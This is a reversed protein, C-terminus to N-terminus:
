PPPPPPTLTPTASVESSESSEGASNAATVVYYYTTGNTLSTHTYSSTVGSIKTGTSKTVGSTTAWYINYSTADSVSSWSITVQTNGASASVGGPASPVSVTTGGGGSSSGGGGGGCGALVTPILAFFLIRRAFDRM